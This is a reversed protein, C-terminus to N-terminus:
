GVLLLTRATNRSIHRWLKATGQCQNRRPMKIPRGTRKDHGQRVHNSGCARSNIGERDGVEESWEDVLQQKGSGQWHRPGQLKTATETNSEQRNCNTQEKDGGDDEM